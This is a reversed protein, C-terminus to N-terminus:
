FEEAVLAYCVGDDLRDVIKRLADFKGKLHDLVGYHPDNGYLQQLLVQLDTKTVTATWAGWDTQRGVWTGERIGDIVARFPSHTATPCPPFLPSVRKGPTLGTQPDVAWELFDSGEPFGAVWVDTSTM